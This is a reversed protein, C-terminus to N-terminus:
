NANEGVLLDLLVKEQYDGLGVPCSKLNGFKDVTIIEEEFEVQIDDFKGQQRAIMQRVYEEVKGDPLCKGDMANYVVKIM